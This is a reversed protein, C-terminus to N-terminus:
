LGDQVTSSLDCLLFQGARAEIQHIITYRDIALFCIISGYLCAGSFRLSKLKLAIEHIESMESVSLRVYYNSRMSMTRTLFAQSEGNNVWLRQKRRILLCFGSLITPLSRNEAGPKAAPKESVQQFGCVAEAM